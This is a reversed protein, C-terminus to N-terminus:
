SSAEPLAQPMKPWSPRLQGMQSSPHGVSSSQSGSELPQTRLHGMEPEQVAVGTFVRWQSLSPAPITWSPRWTVLLPIFTM